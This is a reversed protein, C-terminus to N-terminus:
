TDEAAGGQLYSPSSLFRVPRGVWADALSPAPAFRCVPGHTLVVRLALHRGQLVCMDTGKKLSSPVAILM